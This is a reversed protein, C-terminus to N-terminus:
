LCGLPLVLGCAWCSVFTLCSASCGRLPAPSVGRFFFTGVCAVARPAKSVGPRPFFSPPSAGPPSSWLSLPCSCPTFSWTPPELSASPLLLSNPSCPGPGLALPQTGRSAIFARVHVPSGVQRGGRMEALHESCEEQPRRRSQSCAWVVGPQPRGGRAARAQGPAEAQVRWVDTEELTEPARLAECVAGRCPRCASGPTRLEWCPPGRVGPRVKESGGLLGRCPRDYSSLTHTLCRPQMRECASSRSFIRQMAHQTPHWAAARYVSRGARVKQLM